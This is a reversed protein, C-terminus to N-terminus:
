NRVIRRWFNIVISLKIIFINVKNKYIYAHSKRRAVHLYDLSTWNKTDLNLVDVCKHLAGNYGGILIIKNSDIEVATANQLPRKMKFNLLKWKDYVIDYREISDLHNVNFGGFVYIYRNRNACFAFIEREVNMCSLLIWKGEASDFYELSNLTENGDHGGFVYPIDKIILSGHSFREVLLPKFPMIHLINSIVKCLYTWKKATTRYNSYVCGGSILIDGNSFVCSSSYDMFDFNNGIIYTGLVEWNDEEINYCLIIKDKTDGFFLIHNFNDKNLLQNMNINYDYKVCEESMLKKPNFDIKLETIKLDASNKM